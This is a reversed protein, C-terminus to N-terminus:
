VVCALSKLWCGGSGDTRCGMDVGPHEGVGVQVGMGDDISGVGVSGGVGM